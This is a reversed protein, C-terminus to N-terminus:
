EGLNLDIRNQPFHWSVVIKEICKNRKYATTEYGFSYLLETIETLIESKINECDYIFFNYGKLSANEIKSFLDNKAEDFVNYRSKVYNNYADQAKM